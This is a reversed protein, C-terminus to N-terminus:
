ILCNYFSNPNSALFTQNEICGKLFINFGNVWEDKTIEGDNNNNFYKFMRDMLIDDTMEFCSHLFQRFMKRDMLGGTRSGNTEQGCM